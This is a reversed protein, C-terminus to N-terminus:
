CGQSQVGGGVGKEMKVRDRNSFCFPFWFIISLRSREEREM